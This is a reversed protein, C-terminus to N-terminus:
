IEIEMLDKAISVNGKYYKRIHEVAERYHGDMHPYLHTLYLEKSTLPYEEMMLTMMDPTTHNTMPFGLPFSCEHILVETNEALEMIKECPETDGTYVVSKGESEVLYALSNETHITKACSIHCNCNGDNGKPTFEEGPVLEIIGVTFRDRLYDYVDLTKDFWEKTGQPGYLRMDTKGVLWNAKILALIDGVHDLHLHTVIIADIDNHHYGSEYIRGLVGCGCDFLLLSEGTDMLVGSQVRGAQPIGTGTGLFTIKM